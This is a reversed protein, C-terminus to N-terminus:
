AIGLRKMKKYLGERTIGLAQATRSRHGNNRSLAQSIVWAEVRHLTERLSEVEWRAEAVVPHLAGTVRLSLSERGIAGSGCLAVARQVENELERVNGPWHHSLLVARADEGFSPKEGPGAGSHIELFHNALPLIDERRDRLPPLELEIVALRYYLDERFKGASVAHRLDRNTAAIIRVDVRRETTGGVARIEREQLARLLKVQLGPSTEGIEDLFLTGGDALDFLGQKDRHAGTFAGRRHGFLESELLGEAFAACNVAVFAHPRRKSGLHLARAMREKGTGTEGRLLVTADSNQARQAFRFLERMARSQGLVGFFSKRGQQM